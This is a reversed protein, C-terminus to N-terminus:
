LRRAFRGGGPDIGGRLGFRRAAAGAAQDRLFGLITEDEMAKALFNPDAGPVWVVGLQPYGDHIVDDAVFRFHDRTTVNVKEAAVLRVSLTSDASAAWNFLEFPVAVDLLNSATM